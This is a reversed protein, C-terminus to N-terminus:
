QKFCLWQYDNCMNCFDGQANQEDFKVNDGFAETLADEFDKTAADLADHQILQCIGINYVKGTQQFKM